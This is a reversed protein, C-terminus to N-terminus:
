PATVDGASAPRISQHFRFCDDPDYRRKVARLRALNAGHYAAEGELLLPDPFNVYAGGSGWPQVVNWLEALRDSAASTVRPAPDEVVTAVNVLFSEERHPFATADVPMRGYGGAWAFFTCERAFGPVRDAALREVLASVAEAPLAHRFFMSRGAILDTPVTGEPLASGLLNLRRVAPLYPGPEHIEWTPETGVAEIVPALMADSTEADIVMGFLSVGPAEGPDAPVVLRLEAVVEDPARPAWDQWAGIVAAAHEYPWTVHFASVGAPLPVTALVLTTVVGFQGGGSGRLAWLLDADRAEDCWVVRGDALVVEAAVLRDGALGHRRGLFGLGGGLVHGAVGVTPCTGMPVTRDYPELAGYLRGLRVGAGVTVRGDAVSVRDLPTVDILLGSTSSRGAYCHGGSRPVTAIGHERGFAIAAAVDGAGAARVIAAPRVEVPQRRMPRRAAEYDAHGPLLLTGELSAALRDWAPPTM